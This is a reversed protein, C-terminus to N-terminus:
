PLKVWRRIMLSLSTSLCSFCSAQAMLTGQICGAKLGVLFIVESLNIKFKIEMGLAQFACCIKNKKLNYAHKGVQVYKPDQVYM